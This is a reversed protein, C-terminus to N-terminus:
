EQLYEGTGMMSQGWLELFAFATTLLALFGLGLICGSYFAASRQTLRMYIPLGIFLLWGSYLTAAGAALLLLWRSPLLAALGALMLPLAVATSFGMSRNLDPRVETRFLVWRTLYAIIVIGAVLGAYCWFALLAGSALSLLQTEENGPLRWGVQTTGIFLCVAPLLPMLLWLPLYAAPHQDANDRLEHWATEPHTFFHTLPFTM